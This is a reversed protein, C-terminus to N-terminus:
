RGLRQFSEILFINEERKKVATRIYVPRMNKYSSCDRVLIGQKGLQSCIEPASHGTGSVDILMYNASPIFAKLGGIENIQKYLFTKEENVYSVTNCIYQEDKLVEAGVLQAFCNVNWPDRVRNIKKIIDTSGIGMGLRLGPIAFFKTLSYLVFLNSYKTVLDIVSYNEKDAVFDMFAEDVVVRKKLGAAKKILCELKDRHILSGTPNNPNCIFIVDTDQWQRFVDATELSFENNEDLYCDKVTGKNNRVAIEYENFTPAPILVRGPEIVKVLLYLIEVAGNGAVIMNDPLGLVESVTKRLVVAEPDPYNKVMDINSIIAEVAKPSLGLPNINASFDILETENIGYREAAERLNGGHIHEITEM